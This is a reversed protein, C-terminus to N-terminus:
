KYNKEIYLVLIFLIAVGIGYAIDKWPMKEISDGLQFDSQVHPRNLRKMKQETRWNAYKITLRASLLQRMHRLHQKM